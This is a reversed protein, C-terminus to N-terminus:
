EFHGMSDADDSIATIAPRFQDPDQLPMAVDFHDQQFVALIRSLSRGDAM